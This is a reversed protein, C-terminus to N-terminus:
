KNFYRKQVLMNQLDSRTSRPDWSVSNVGLVEQHPFDYPKESYYKRFWKTDAPILKNLTDVMDVINLTGRNTLADQDVMESM